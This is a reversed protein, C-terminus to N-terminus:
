GSRGTDMTAFRRRHCNGAFQRTVSWLFRSNGVLYRRWRKTPNQMLRYVWEGGCRCLWRPARRERDAFYDLLAGVAWRVPVKLDRAHGALWSEQRPSGMGVVVLDAGSANIDDIVRNGQQDSFYGEQTGAISLAPVRSVLVEAATESVGASGGLLYVSLEEEACRRCFTEFYDAASLREPIQHGLWRGAWVVGMGDAYLLDSTALIRRFDPDNESLAFTHANLYHVSTRIGRKARTIMAEILQHQSIPHVPLGCIM